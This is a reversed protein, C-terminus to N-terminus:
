IDNPRTSRRRVRTERVNSNRAVRVVGDVLFNKAGTRNDEFNNLVDRFVSPAKLAKANVDLHRTHARSIPDPAFSSTLTM